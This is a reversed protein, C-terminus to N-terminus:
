VCAMKHVESFLKSSDFPTDTKICAWVGMLYKRMIACIAQIKKKGRALLADKFAKANPDHISASMAPMFLSSRLYANGAKSLRGPSNVSTGSQNLRVSLGAHHCVQPAKLSAPLINLEGMMCIASNEAIGTAATINSLQRKLTGHGNILELALNRMREIRKENFRIGEKEDEIVHKNTGKTACLAHLINKSQTNMHTLRNIQRSIDRLEMMVDDPAAWLEPTMRQGYEALLAADVNDTKTSKLLTKAFHKFSNPNIVALPLGAKFLAKALDLYYIGTAEMVICDPKLKILKKILKKHGDKHQKFTEVKSSKNNQRVVVDFTKSAIDIGVFSAM